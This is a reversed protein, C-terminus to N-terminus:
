SAALYVNQTLSSALLGVSAWMAGSLFFLFLRLIIDPIRSEVAWEGYVEIPSFVLLFIGQALLIGLVLALGGSIAAGLGKGLIYRSVSTRTLYPKLYGSRVDDTFATTYPIAALIPVAFLIIDSSLASLLLENHYGYMVEPQEMRFVGLANSFVGICLCLTMGGFAILFSRSFIARRLDGLIQRM